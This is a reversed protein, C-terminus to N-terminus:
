FPRRFLFADSVSGNANKVTLTVQQGREIMKGAKKAVLSMGQQNDGNSTKQKQSEILIEAGDDFNFGFVLLKKGSVAANIIRPKLPDINFDISLVPYLGAGNPAGTQDNASDYFGVGEVFV